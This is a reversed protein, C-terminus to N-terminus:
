TEASKASVYNDHGIPMFIREKEQGGYIKNAKKIARGDFTRYQPIPQLKDTTLTTPILGM